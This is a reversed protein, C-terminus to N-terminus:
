RKSGRRRRPPIRRWRRTRYRRRAPPAAQAADAPANAPPASMAAHPATGGAAASPEDVDALPITAASRAPLTGAEAEPVRPSAALETESEANAPGSPRQKLRRTAPLEARGGDSAAAPRRRLRQTPALPAAPSPVREPESAASAADASPSSAAPATPTAPQADAPIPAPLQAPEPSPADSKVIYGTVTPPVAARLADLSLLTTPQDAVDFTAGPAPLARPQRPPGLRALPSGGFRRSTLYGSGDRLEAVHVRVGSRQPEPLAALRRLAPAPRRAQIASSLEQLGERAEHLWTGLTEASASAAPGITTAVARQLAAQRRLRRLGQISAGARQAAAAIAVHLSPLLVTVGAHLQERHTHVWWEQWPSEGGVLLVDPRLTNVARVLDDGADDEGNIAQRSIGAARLAPWFQRLLAVDATIEADPALLVMAKDSRAAAECLDFLLTEPQIGPTGRSRTLRRIVADDDAPVVYEAASLAEWVAYERQALLLTWLDAVIVRLGTRAVVSEWVALTIHAPTAVDLRIGFLSYSAPGTSADLYSM